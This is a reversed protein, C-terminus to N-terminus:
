FDIGWTEFYERNNNKLHEQLEKLISKKKENKIENGMNAWIVLLRFHFM